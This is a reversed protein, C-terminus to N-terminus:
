FELIEGLGAFVYDKGFHDQLIKYALHGTCHTPAVKKVKLDKKLRITLETLATRDYPLLHYGGYVLKINNETYRKTEIIIKEVTSHSCGVFLVEGEDSELSLSIENLGNFRTNPSEGNEYADLSPYKNFYGMNPSTTAILKIGSDIETSEKIFEVNAKWFRGTQNFQFDKYNGGFYQMRKELSDVISSDTGSIDFPINAGWFIDFPFYIKVDPNVKLLYDFGNIHDFHSHSAIAFDVQRLDINLSEVNNKFIDANTGSDFLIIKGKYNVICSFGFDKILGNYDDGFADYLNIITNEEITRYENKYEVNSSEKNVEICSFIVLAICCILLTKNM